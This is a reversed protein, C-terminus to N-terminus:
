KKPPPTGGGPAGGGPAGGTPSGGSSDDGSDDELQPEEAEGTVLYQRRALYANRVFAYPDFAGDILADTSLLRTRTDLVEVFWLSWSAADNQIWHTPTTYIDAIRGAGDRVDSPGLFPIVLYPGPHLGWHGLTLGFDEDHKDLGAASAPDLLGGVGVTTNLLFRGTDEGAQVFKAQLLGNIITIPYTLNDMFNSVGTRVIQPTIRVYTHAVPRAIAKDFKDNLKYTTRNMREWPDRPDRKAPAAACGFLLLCLLIM